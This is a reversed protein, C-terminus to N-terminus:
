KFRKRRLAILGALGSGLLLLTGPEPSPVPNAVSTVSSALIMQQQGPYLFNLGAIEDSTLFRSIEGPAITSNMVELGTAVITAGSSDFNRGLDDALDPHDLGIAHGIEHLAVSEIDYEGSGPNDSYAYDTNFIVDVGNIYGDAVTTMTVALANDYGLYSFLFSPFALIDIDSGMFPSFSALGSETFNLATSGSSWTDFANRVASGDGGVDSYYNSAIAFSLGGELDAESWLYPSTFDQFNLLAFSHVSPLYVAQALIFLLVALLARGVKDVSTPVAFGSSSIGFILRMEPLLTSLKKM